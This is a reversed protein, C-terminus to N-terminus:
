LIITLTIQKKNKLIQLINYFMIYQTIKDEIGLALRYIRLVGLNSKKNLLQKREPHEYYEQANSIFATAEANVVVNRKEPFWDGNESEYGLYEFSNIKHNDILCLRDIFENVEFLAENKSTDIPSTERKLVTLEIDGEASEVMDINRYKKSVSGFNVQIGIQINIDLKFKHKIM